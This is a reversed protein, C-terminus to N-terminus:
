LLIFIDNVLQLIMFLDLWINQKHENMREVDIHLIYCTFSFVNHLIHSDWGM